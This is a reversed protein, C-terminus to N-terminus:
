GTGGDLELARLILTREVETSAREGLAEIQPRLRRVEAAADRNGLRTEVLGLIFRPLREEPEYPRGQGLNEPWSMARELHGKAKQLNGQDYADLAAMTLAQEWLRHSERANESPLVHTHTLIEAAEEPRGLNILAKAELLDLNFDDPFRERAHDVSALAEGWQGEGQLWQILHIHVIRNEPDAGVALRLDPIPSSGELRNLLLGRAIFMPAFRPETGLGKLIEAAEEQRDVAWLNLALLYDWDWDDSNRAAWRLVPISEVRYPFSFDPPPADLLRAPGNDLM